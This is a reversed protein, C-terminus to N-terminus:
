KSLCLSIMFKSNMNITSIRCTLITYMGKCFIALLCVVERWGHLGQIIRCDYTYESYNFNTITFFLYAIEGFLNRKINVM